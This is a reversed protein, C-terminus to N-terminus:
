KKNALAKAFASPQKSQTPNTKKDTTQSSDNSVFALHQTAKSNANSPSGFDSM